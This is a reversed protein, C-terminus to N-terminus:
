KVNSSESHLDVSIIAFATLAKIELANLLPLVKCFNM